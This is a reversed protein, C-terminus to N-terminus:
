PRIVRGVMFPAHAAAIVLAPLLRAAMTSRSRRRRSVCTASRRMVQCGVREAIVMAPMDPTKALLQRVEPEFPTLSPSVMAREYKSPGDSAM